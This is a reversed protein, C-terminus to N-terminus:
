RRRWWNPPPPPYPYAPYGGSVSFGGGSYTFHSGTRAILLIPILMQM